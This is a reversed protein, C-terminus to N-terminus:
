FHEFAVSAELPNRKAHLPSPKADAAPHGIPFIAVPKITDPLAFDAALKAPDFHGVWTTGLGLNHVALMIHTAVIAADIPGSNHKDFSRVWSVTADYCVVLALPADFTYPTCNKLKNLSEPSELVLIRTPQKNVATPALRGAELIATRDKATIPEQTFNRVSYRQAILECFEM